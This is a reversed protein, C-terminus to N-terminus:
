LRDELGAARQEYTDRMEPLVSARYRYSKASIANLTKRMNPDQQRKRMLRKNLEIQRAKRKPDIHYYITTPDVGFKEAIDQVKVGLKKRDKYMRKIEEIDAAMLKRRRDLHEPLKIIDTM